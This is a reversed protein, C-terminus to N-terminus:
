MDTLEDLTARYNANDPGGLEIAKEAAEIAERRRGLAKLAYALNNWAPASNGPDAAIAGRWASAAGAPDVLAYRANGLGMWAPFSQPWRELIAEYAIAADAYREVRELGAAARVVEMEEAAVPMEGPKLVVLAWYGGRRWTHEFTRLAVPRNDWPGTNMILEGDDLDYGIAVAFHWRPYFDLGLNQFVLVPRGAAIEALLVRLTDVPVALRGNRRMAAIVDPQLTGERGPTYVQEAMDQQTVPLGSWNLVMATAAPGCYYKEQPFFPVDAVAAHRPLAGPSNLLDSTQRATACGSVLVLVALLQFAARKM